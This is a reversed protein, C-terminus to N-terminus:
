PIQKKKRACLPDATGSSRSSTTQWRVASVLSSTMGQDQRVSRAANETAVLSLTESTSATPPVRQRMTSSKRAESRHQPFRVPEEVTSSLLSPRGSPHESAQAVAQSGDRPVSPGLDMTYRMHDQGWIPSMQFAGSAAALYAM